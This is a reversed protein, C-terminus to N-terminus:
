CDLKYRKIFSEIEYVVDNFPISNDFIFGTVGNIVKHKCDYLLIENQFECVALKFGFDKFDKKIYVIYHESDYYEKSIDIDM